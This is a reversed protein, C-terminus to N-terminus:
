HILLKETLEPTLASQEICGLALQRLEGEVRELNGNEELVRAGHACANPSGAPNELAALRPLRPEGREATNACSGSQIGLTSRNFGNRRLPASDLGSHLISARRPPTAHMPCGHPNHQGRRPLEHSTQAGHPAPEGLEALCHM